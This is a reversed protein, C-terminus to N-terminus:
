ERCTIKAVRVVLNRGYRYPVTYLITRSGEQDFAVAEGNDMWVASVIQGPLSFIDRLDAEEQDGM